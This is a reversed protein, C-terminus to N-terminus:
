PEEKRVNAVKRAVCDLRPQHTSKSQSSRSSNNAYEAREMLKVLRFWLVFTDGGIHLFQRSFDKRLMHDYSISLFLLPFLWAGTSPPLM